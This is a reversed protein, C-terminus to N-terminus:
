QNKMTLGDMMRDLDARSVIGKLTFEFGGYKPTTEIAVPAPTFKCGVPTARSTYDVGSFGSLWDAMHEAAEERTEYTYDGCRKGHIRYGGDVKDIAVEPEPAPAPGIQHGAPGSEIRANLGFIHQLTKELESAYAEPTYMDIDFRLEPCTTTWNGPDSAHGSSILWALIQQKM